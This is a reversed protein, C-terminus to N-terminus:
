SRTYTTAVQLQSPTLPVQAIIYEGSCQASIQLASRSVNVRVRDPFGQVVAILADTRGDSVETARALLHRTTLVVAREDATLDASDDGGGCDPHWDQCTM